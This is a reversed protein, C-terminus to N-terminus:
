RSRCRNSRLRCSLAWCRSTASESWSLRSSSCSAPSRLAAACSSCARRSISVDNVLQTLDRAPNVGRHDAPVPERDRKLLERRM